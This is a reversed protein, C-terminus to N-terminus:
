TATDTNGHFFHFLEEAVSSAAEIERQSWAPLRRFRIKSFGERSVMRGQTYGIYWIFSDGPALQRLDSEQIEDFGLTMFEDPKKTDSLDSIRASFEECENNIETVIGSFTQKIDDVVRPITDAYRLAKRGFRNTIHISHNEYLDNTAITDRREGVDVTYNTAVRFKLSDKKPAEDVRYTDTDVAQTFATSSVAM